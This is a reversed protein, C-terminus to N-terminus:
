TGCYTKYESEEMISPPKQFKKLNKNKSYPKKLMKLLENFKEYNENLEIDRLAEEVLYNRPIILPNYTNILKSNKNNLKRENIERIINQFSEKKYINKLNSHDIIQIFTNTYDAKNENMWSLIKQILTTDDKKNNFIGIKNKMMETWENKYIDEFEDIINTGIEISKKENEDFFPIMTEAFRSINWHTIIPQNQFSYRGTRDISSFVTSPKYTDMFACPGYDITEGSITVNDTNMVGHIFGVKMWQVILSIQKKILLRLLTVSPNIKIEESPYHRKLCYNILKNLSLFDGKMSLYQFTGIRIHSSAVRTLIGGMYLKERQIYEGTSIVSLSRTTPIKLKNMAESILYERLMSILTARGDGNRSYPTLGSGKLQIDFRQNKLTVHEGLLIARGDGLMTLHGFQHGAYAQSICGENNILNNGSLITAIKSKASLDFDLDLNKALDNNFIILKPFKVPTPNVETRLSKSLNIFTNEFNFGLNYKDFNM